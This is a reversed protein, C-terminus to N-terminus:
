HFDVLHKVVDNGFMDRMQIDVLVIKIDNKAVYEIGHTAGTFCTTQYKKTRRLFTDILRLIEPDDDIIVIEPLM